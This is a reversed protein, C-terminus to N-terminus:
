LGNEKIKEIMLKQSATLNKPIEVKVRILLDGKITSNITPLGEGKCSLTTNSQTGPPITVNLDKNELTTIKISTGLIADWVSIVRECIIWNRMREFVPHTKVFVNVILDGPPVDAFSDDGMGHYRMQQGHEIGAPIKLNITKRSQGPASIEADFEKGTMVEELSIEISISINKNRRISRNSFGFGFKGFIDNFDGAGFHFEFPHQNGFGQTGNPDMGSDIMSKKQPDSLYEYAQSIEKFKKEDGGRDPHHKMALSRYAKKIEEASAGRQLGLISYYDMSINYLFFLITDLSGM